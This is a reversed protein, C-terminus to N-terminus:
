KKEAETGPSSVKEAGKVAAEGGVVESHGKRRRQGM